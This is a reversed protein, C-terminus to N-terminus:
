SPRGYGIELPYLLAHYVIVLLLHGQWPRNVASGVVDFAQAPAIQPQVDQAFLDVFGNVM